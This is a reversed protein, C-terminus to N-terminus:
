NEEKEKKQAEGGKGPKGLLADGKSTPCALTIFSGKNEKLDKEAESTDESPPYGKCRVRNRRTAEKGPVKMKM